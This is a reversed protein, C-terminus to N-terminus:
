RGDLGLFFNRWSLPHQADPPSAYDAPHPPKVWLKSARSPPSRCSRSKAMLVVLPVVTGRAWSSMEYINILFWSPLLVPEAPM